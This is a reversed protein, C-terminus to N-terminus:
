VTSSTKAKTIAGKESTAIDNKEIMCQQMHYAIIMMSSKVVLANDENPTINKNRELIKKDTKVDSGIFMIGRNKKPMRIDSITYITPYLLTQIMTRQTNLALNEAGTYWAERIEQFTPILNKYTTKQLARDLINTLQLTDKDVILKELYEDNVSMENYIAALGTEIGSNYSADQMRGISGKLVNKGVQTFSDATIPPINEKNDSSQLLTTLCICLMGIISKANM